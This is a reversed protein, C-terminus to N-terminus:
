AQTGNVLVDDRVFHFFLGVFQQVVKFVKDADKQTEFVAREVNSCYGESIATYMIRQDKTFNFYKEGARCATAWQGESMFGHKKISQWYTEFVEKECNDANTCHTKFELSEGLEAGTMSIKAVKGKESM